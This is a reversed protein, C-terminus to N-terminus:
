VAGVEVLPGIEEIDFDDVAGATARRVSAASVATAYGLRDALSRGAAAVWAAAFADGAGVPNGRQEPPRARLAGDGTVLISGGHSITAIVTRAGSSKRMAGAAELV